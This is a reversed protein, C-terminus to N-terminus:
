NKYKNKEKWIFPKRIIEKKKGILAAVNIPLNLPNAALIGIIKETVNGEEICYELGEWYEQLINKNIEEDVDENLTEIKEIERSSVEKWIIDKITEYNENSIKKEREKGKEYEKIIKIGKEKFQKENIKKKEVKIEIEKIIIPEKQYTFENDYFDKQQYLTYYKEIIKNNKEDKEFPIKTKGIKKPVTTREVHINSVIGNLFLPRLGKSWNIM